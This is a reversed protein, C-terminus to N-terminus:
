AYIQRETHHKILKEIGKRVETLFKDLKMSQHNHIEFSGIKEVHEIKPNGFVDRERRDISHYVTTYVVDYDESSRYLNRDGLTPGGDIEIYYGKPVSFDLKDM